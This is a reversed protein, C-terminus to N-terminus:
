SKTSTLRPAAIHTPSVRDMPMLGGAEAFERFLFSSPLYQRIVFDAIRKRQSFFLPDPLVLLVGTREKEIRSLATDLQRPDRAEFFDLSV